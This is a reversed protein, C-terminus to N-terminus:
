LLKTATCLRLVCRFSQRMRLANEPPNRALLPPVFGRAQCRGNHAMMWWEPQRRLGFNAKAQLNLPFKEPPPPSFQPQGAIKKGWPSTLFCLDEQKKQEKAVRAFWRPPFVRSSWGPPGAKCPFVREQLPRKTLNM